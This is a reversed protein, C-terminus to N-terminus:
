MPGPVCSATDIAWILALGALVIQHARIVEVGQRELGDLVPEDRRQDRGLVPELAVDGELQERLLRLVALRQGLAEPVGAGDGYVLVVDLLYGLALLAVLAAVLSELALGVLLQGVRALVEAREGASSRTSSASPM